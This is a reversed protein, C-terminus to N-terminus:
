PKALPEDLAAALAGPLAERPSAAKAPAPALSLSM